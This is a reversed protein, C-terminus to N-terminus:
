RPSNSIVQYIIMRMFANHKPRILVAKIIKLSSIFDSNRVKESEYECRHMCVYVCVYVCEGETGKEQGGERVEGGERVCESM